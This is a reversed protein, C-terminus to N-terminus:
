EVDFLEFVTCSVAIIVIASSYFTTHTRDFPATKLSRSCVRVWNELDRLVKISFIEYTPVSIVMTVISPSYFVGDLSEFPVLKFTKSHGETVKEIDHNNLKM